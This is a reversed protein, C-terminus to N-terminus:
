RGGQGRPPPPVARLLLGPNDRIVDTASRLNSASERVDRLIGPLSQEVDATVGNAHRAASQLVGILPGLREAAAALRDAAQAANALVRHVEPGTAEERLSTSTQRLDATLGPVDAQRLAVRADRMLGAAEDLAAHVDGSAVTDHLTVLLNQLNAVLAVIDVRDLRAVFRQAADQVQAIISPIAPIYAGQPTWPLARPPHAAPDVFDLELYSVGTIGQMALRARLGQRVAAAVRTADFNGGIRRPNIQYRVLVLRAAESRMDAPADPAYVAAALGIAKVVGVAVGRYKVATGVELGEVSESFYSECPVGTQFRPGGLLLVLGVLVAAGLVIMLGTRVFAARTETM